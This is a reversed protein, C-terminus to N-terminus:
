ICSHLRSSCLGTPLSGSRPIVRNFAYIHMLWLGLLAPGNDQEWPKNGAGGGRRQCAQEGLCRWKLGNAISSHCMKFLEPGTNIQETISKNWFESGNHELKLLCRAPCHVHTGEVGRPPLCCRVKIPRSHPALSGSGPQTESPLAWLSGM